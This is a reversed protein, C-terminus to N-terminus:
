GSQLFNSLEKYVKRTKETGWLKAQNEIERSITKIMQLNHIQSAYSLLILFLEFRNTDNTDLMSYSNYLVRLRLGPKDDKSSTIASILKPILKTSAQGELKKMLAIIVVFFGEVQDPSEAFVISHEDILRLLVELDRKEEVMKSCEEFFVDNQEKGKTKLTNLHRALDLVQDVQEEESILEIYTAM